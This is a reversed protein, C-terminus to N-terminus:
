QCFCDSIELRKLIRIFDKGYIYFHFYYTFFDFMLNEEELQKWLKDIFIKIPYNKVKLMLTGCKIWIETFIM